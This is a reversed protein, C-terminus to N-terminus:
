HYYNEYQMYTRIYAHVPTNLTLVTIIRVYKIM